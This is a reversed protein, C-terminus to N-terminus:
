SGATSSISCRVLRGVAGHTSTGALSLFKARTRTSSVTCFCTSSPSARFCDRSRRRKQRSYNPGSLIVRHLRSREGAVAKERVKMWTASPSRHVCAQAVPARGGAEPEEGEHRKQCAAALGHPFVARD